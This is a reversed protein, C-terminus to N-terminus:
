RLLFRRAPKGDLMAPGLAQVVIGDYADEVNGPSRWKDLMGAPVKSRVVQGGAQMYMTDGIITQTGIGGPMTMRFRDPAVFDLETVITKGQAEVQMTAHYSRSGQFAGLSAILEARADTAPGAGAEDVAPGAAMAPEAAAGARAEPGAPAPAGRDCAALALAACTCLLLTMPRHMSMPSPEKVPAIRTYAVHWRFTGLRAMIAGHVSVFADERQVADELRRAVRHGHGPQAVFEFARAGGDVAVQGEQAVSQHRRHDAVALRAEAVVGVLAVPELQGSQPEVGVLQVRQEGRLLQERAAAAPHQRRRQRRQLAPDLFQQGFVRGALRPRDLAHPHDRVAGPAHVLVGEAGHARRHQRALPQREFVAGAGGVLLGPARHRRLADGVVAVVPVEIRPVLLLFRQAAERDVADAAGALEVGGRAVDVVRLEVLVQGAAVADEGARGLAHGRDHEAGLGRAPDG